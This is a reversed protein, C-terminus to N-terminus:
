QIRKLCLSNQQEWGTWYTSRGSESYSIYKARYQGSGRCKNGRTEADLWKYVKKEKFNISGDCQYNVNLNTTITDGKYDIFYANGNSCVYGIGEEFGEVHLWQATIVIEGTGDKFGYLSGKRYPVLTAQLRIKEEQLKKKAEIKALRERELRTNEAAIRAKKDALAKKRMTDYLRDEFNLSGSTKRDDLVGIDVPITNSKNELAKLREEWEAWSREREAEAKCEKEKELDKVRVVESSKCTYQVRAYHPERRENCGCDHVIAEKYGSGKCLRQVKAITKPCWVSCRAFDKFVMTETKQISTKEIIKDKYSTSVCRAAAERDEKEANKKDSMKGKAKKGLCQFDLVITCKDEDIRPSPHNKCDLERYDLNTKDLRLGAERCVAYAKSKAGIKVIRRATLPGLYADTKGKVSGVFPSSSQSFVPSQTSISLLTALAMLLILRM